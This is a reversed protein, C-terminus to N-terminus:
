PGLAEGDYHNRGRGAPKLHHAEQRMRIEPSHHTYRTHCGDGAPTPVGRLRSSHLRMASRVECFPLAGAASWGECIRFTTRTPWEPAPLVVRASASSAVVPVM